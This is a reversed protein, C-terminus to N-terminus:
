SHRVDRHRDAWAAWAVLLWLSLTVWGIARESPPPSSFPGAVWIVASLGLLSWMAWVGTRDRARTARLYLAIGAAFLTGEVVFTAAISNWLGLGVRPSAWPWLPLDPAHSVFDLVWHSLVLGCILAATPRSLGRWRAVIAAAVAWVASMLLSHSYPYSQFDFPTFATIGPAIRVHEIDLLLLVPWILDLAMAAALLWGLSVERTRSRAALAVATHGVFM